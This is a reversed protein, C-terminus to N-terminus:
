KLFKNNLKDLEMNTLGCSLLYDRVSNYNVELYAITKEMDARDSGLFHKPIDQGTRKKFDRSHEEIFHPLFSRSVEYDSLITERDVRALGLILYTLVGTRDKGASCHFLAVGPNELFLKFIKKYSNKENELLKIYVEGMSSPMRHKERLTALGDLMPIHVYNINDINKLKSPQNDVEFQSRLDIELTVGYNEFFNIDSESLKDTGGGRIYIKEKTIKGDTTPYNALERFNEGKELEFPINIKM